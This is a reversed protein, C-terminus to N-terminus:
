ESALTAIEAPSLARGYIRLDDIRGSFQGEGAGIQLPADNTAPDVASVALPSGGGDMRSSETVEFVETGDVYGRVADGDYVVALHTWTGVPVSGAEGIYNNDAEDEFGARLRGNRVQFGFAWQPPDKLTVDNRGATSDMNVWATETYPGTVDLAPDDPVAVSDDTGDFSLAQGTQGAALTAGGNTGDNGNGTVDPVTNGDLSEFTYRALLSEESPEVGTSVSGSSGPKDVTASVTAPLTYETLSGSEPTEVHVGMAVTAGVPLEVVSNPGDNLRISPDSDPYLWVMESDFPTGDFDFEVWVYVPQTGQNTVTFVNDFEYVSDLGVGSGDTASDDGFQFRITGDSQSAYAGNPGDSPEMALLADADDAVTVTLDRDAAVSTFAGTGALGGAGALGGM